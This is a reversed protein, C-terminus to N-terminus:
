HPLSFALLKQQADRAPPLERRSRLLSEATFDPRHRGEVVEEVINPALFAFRIVRSVYRKGLKERQGIAAMSAARGSVLDDFWCRARGFLKVLAPDTGRSVVSDGGIVFKMEVGRRRMLMPVLRTLKLHPEDDATKGPPGIPLQISIKIGDEALEVREVLLRLSETAAAESGLPESWASAAEFISKVHLADCDLHEVEAAISTRDKLMMSAAAAVRREFEAAPIRWGGENQTATGTILSRSVYYRYRRTGKVAHSPTLPRGSQDFLKGLLPSQMSKTGTGRAHGAHAHLLEDAKNWIAREIIPEHLGPHRTGKHRVEGIYIPNKLVTYLAGRSFSEGGSRKGNKAVRVKSRIGDRDLQNKLLRVNGLECYRQFIKRVTEAESPEIVLQRDRVEYGLPVLGGVWMGKRKSAAIKDRIREGTVEREFQAFSLLVNLTLRGMSTTTNFQQTVAVLSVSHGDFIEVIKAFDSLSRARNSNSCNRVLRLIHLPAM